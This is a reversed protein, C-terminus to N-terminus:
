CATKENVVHLGSPPLTLGSLESKISALLQLDGVDHVMLVASWPIDLKTPQFPTKDARM